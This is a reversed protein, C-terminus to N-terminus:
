RRITLTNYELYAIRIFIQNERAESRIAGVRGFVGGGWGEGRGTGMRAVGEQPNSGDGFDGEGGVTGGTLFWGRGIVLGIEYNLFNPLHM